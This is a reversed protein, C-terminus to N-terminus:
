DELYASQIIDKERKLTANEAELRQIRKELELQEAEFEALGDRGAQIFRDRWQYYCSTSIGKQRCLEAIPQQSRLGELILDVKREVPWPERRARNQMMAGKGILM